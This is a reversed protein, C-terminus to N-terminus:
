AIKVRELCEKIERDNLMLNDIKASAKLTFELRFLPKSLKDKLAKDYLKIKTVDTLGLPNNVYYSSLYTIVEGFATLDEINPKLPTDRAIDASDVSFRNFLTIIDEKAEDTLPKKYSGLGFAVLFGKTYNSSQNLHHPTSLYINKYGDPAIIQHLSTVEKTFLLRKANSSIKSHSKIEKIKYGQKICYAKFTKKRVIARLTDFILPTEVGKISYTLM